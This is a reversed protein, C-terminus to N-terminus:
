LCQPGASVHRTRLIIQGFREKSMCPREVFAYFAASAVLLFPTIVILQMLLNVTFPGAFSIAHTYRLALPIVFYHILYISYCMGGVLTVLPATLVRHVVVSQFVAFCFMFLMVPLSFRMLEPRVSGSLLLLTGIGGAVFDWKREHTRAEKWETLYIDALLFGVFFYQLNNALTFALVSGHPILLIQGSMIAMGLAVIVIRRVVTRRVAFLFALAPMLLYFQIEIELTWAVPVIVSGHAYALGHLYFVSAVLHPFLDRASQGLFWVKCAFVVLLVLIYPPVIRVLRRFLYRKLEVAPARGLYHAAFPLALVFGSIVFFLEVGHRGELVVHTNWPNEDPTAWYPPYGVALFFGIHYAVVAGIATFRLGEIEPIVRGSSPVRSFGHFFGILRSTEPMASM